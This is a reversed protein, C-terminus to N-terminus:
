VNSNRGHDSCPLDLDAAQQFSPLTCGVRVYGGFPVPLIAPRFQRRLWTILRKM